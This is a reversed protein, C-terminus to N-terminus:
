AHHKDAGIVGAEFLTVFERVLHVIINVLISVICAGVFWSQLLNDISTSELHILFIVHSFYLHNQNPVIIIVLVGRIVIWQEGPHSELVLTMQSHELHQKAPLLSLNLLQRSLFLDRLLFGM